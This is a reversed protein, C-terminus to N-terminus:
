EKNGGKMLNLIREAYPINLIAAAKHNNSEILAKLRLQESGNINNTQTIM